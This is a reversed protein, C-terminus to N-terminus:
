GASRGDRVDQLLEAMTRGTIPDIMHPAIATLPALVFERERFRPHPVILGPENIIRDGYLILDLDLTRPAAAYPRERNREQEIALLAALVERPALATHGVAASNLFAPQPSDVGFPETEVFPAVQLDTLVSRLRGAAYDLHAHRDGLNSGLGVAIVRDGL